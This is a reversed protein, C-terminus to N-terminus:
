VDAEILKRDAVAATLGPLALGLAVALTSAWAVALALAM